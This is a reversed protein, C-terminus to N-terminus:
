REQSKLWDHMEVNVVDGHYCNRSTNYSLLDRNHENLNGRFVTSVMLARDFPSRNGYHALHSAANVVDGMWVVDHVGSGKQGAKVMLARGYSMGLGAAVPSFGKREHKYSLIQVLSNARAATTFVDDIHHKQPTDYVAWVADGHISVERVQPSSRLVASLESVYARYLRALTTPRHKSTLGSSDRMDVFLASCWVYFGNAYTLRSRSPISDLDEGEGSTFIDNIRQRSAEFDYTSFSAEM